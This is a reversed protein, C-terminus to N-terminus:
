EETKRIKKKILMSYEEIVKGAEIKDPRIKFTMEAHPASEILNDEEDFLEKVKFFIEGGSPIMVEIDDGVCVKNKQTVTILRSQPDYKECM